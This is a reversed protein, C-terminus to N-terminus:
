KFIFKFWELTFIIRILRYFLILYNVGNKNKYLICIINKFKSHYPKSTINGSREIYYGLYKKIIQIKFSDGIRLWLDYDQANQFYENFGGNDIILKKKMVITSMAFFNTKFLQNKVSKNFNYYKDYDYYKKKKNLKLFIQRHLICNISTNKKIENVTENLKDKTWLDDSDIFAVWEYSANKIAENRASGPGKHSNKIIKVSINKEQFKIKFNELINITEDSSGDDSFIIEFNQYTQGLISEITKSIFASSNYSPCIVSIFM